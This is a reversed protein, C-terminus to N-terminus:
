QEHHISGGERLPQQGAATRYPSIGSEDYYVGEFAVTVRRRAKNHKVAEIDHWAEGIGDHINEALRCVAGPVM